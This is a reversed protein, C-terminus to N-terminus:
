EEGGSEDAARDPEHLTTETAATDQARAGSIDSPLLELLEDDSPISIKALRSAQNTIADEFLNRVTRGNGFGRQRPQSRLWVKVAALTEENALYHSKKCIMKFIEVLEDDSYDPFYITTTFRSKLGPNANILVQMEDPYGCVIVALDDRHDEMQKVLTDIAERGFDNEGGRALAYAEDILLIGGIASGIVAATKTATQGVYGAVLDARETEILQGKAVIGLTHFFAALLRAVTTKGTGPNGTFVLHHSREVVPLKRQERLKQITLLDILRNVESKVDTLGVLEDLERRLEDLPRPPQVEEQPADGSPGQQQAAAPTSNANKTARSQNASIEALLMQRFVQLDNLEQTTTLQDLACAELALDTALDYYQQSYKTGNARDAALMVKFAASPKTKWDKKNGAMADARMQEPTARILHPLWTGLAESLAMLEEDSHRDDSDIFSAILDFAELAAEDTGVSSDLSGLASSLFRVFDTTPRNLAVGM